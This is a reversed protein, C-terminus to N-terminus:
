SSTTPSREVVQLINEFRGSEKVKAKLRFMLASFYVVKMCQTAFKPLVKSGSNATLFDGVTNTLLLLPVEMASVM